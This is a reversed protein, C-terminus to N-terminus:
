AAEEKDRQDCREDLTRAGPKPNGEKDYDWSMLRDGPLLGRDRLDMAYEAAEKRAARVYARLQLIEEVHRNLDVNVSDTMSQVVEDVQQNHEVHSELLQEQHTAIDSLERVVKQAHAAAHNMASAVKMVRELQWRESRWLPHQGTGNCFTCMSEVVDARVRTGMCEPCTQPTAPNFHKGWVISPAIARQGPLLRVTEFGEPLEELPGDDGDPRWGLSPLKDLDPFRNKLEDTM